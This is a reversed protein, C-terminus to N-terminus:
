SNLIRLSRFQHRMPPPVPGLQWSIIIFLHFIRLFLTVHTMLLSPIKLLSLSFHEPIISPELAQGAIFIDTVVRLVLLVEQHLLISDPLRQIYLCQIAESVTINWRWRAKLLPASTQPVGRGGTHLLHRPLFDKVTHLPQMLNLSARRRAVPLVWM